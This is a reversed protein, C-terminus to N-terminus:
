AWVREQLYIAEERCFSRCIGCGYCKLPDIIITNTSQDFDLAGFYCAKLCAKCGSCRDSIVAAIYEARFMVPYNKHVAKLAMCDLDCNCIGGIFPTMFTWVSHMMKKKELERFQQLAETKSIVELGATHPGNLYDASISRLVRGMETDDGPEISLGYCYRHEEGKGAKRCICPLRVVSTIFDFIKEVDELPLVQGYHKRKQRNILTPRVVSRVYAPLRNLDDLLAISRNLREPTEFFHRIYKRRRMDHLLDTAYNDARLYWKEGEGHQHCFECM